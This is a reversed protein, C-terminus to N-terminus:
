VLRGNHRAATTLRDDYTLVTDVDLLVATALLIADLSRLANPEIRRALSV